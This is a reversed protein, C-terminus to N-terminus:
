TTRRLLKRSKPECIMKIVDKKEALSVFELGRGEPDGFCSNTDSVGFLVLLSNITLLKEGQFRYGKRVFTIETAMQNPRFLIPVIM